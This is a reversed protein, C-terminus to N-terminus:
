NRASDYAAPDQRKSRRRVPILVREGREDARKSAVLAAYMALTALSMSGAILGWFLGVYPKM